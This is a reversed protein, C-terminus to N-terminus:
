GDIEVEAPAIIAAKQGKPQDPLEVRTIRWGCHQVIGRFPPQGAVRGTLRIESADFGAPVTVTDGEADPMVPVLTIYEHLANRCDQHIQRVAAGIQADGYGSIDEELFDILRGKNQFISLVRSVGQDVAERGQQQEAKKPTRLTKEGMKNAETTRGAKRLFPMLLVVAMVAALCFALPVYFGAQSRLEELGALHPMLLQVVDTDLGAVVAVLSKIVPDVFITTAFYVGALSASTALFFIL